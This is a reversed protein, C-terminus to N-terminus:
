NLNRVLKLGLTKFLRRFAPEPRGLLFDLRGEFVVVVDRGVIVDDLPPGVVVVGVIVVFVVPIRVVFVFARWRILRNKFGSLFSFRILRNLRIEGGFFHKRHQRTVEAWFVTVADPAADGKRVVVVEVLIARSLTPVIVIILGNRM